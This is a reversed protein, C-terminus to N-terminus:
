TFKLCLKLKIMNSHYLEIKIKKKWKKKKKLNLNTRYCETKKEDSTDYVLKSRSAKEKKQKKQDRLGKKSNHHKMWLPFVNFNSPVNWIKSIM